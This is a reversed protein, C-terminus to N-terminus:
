YFMSGYTISQYLLYGSVASAQVFIILRIFYDGAM